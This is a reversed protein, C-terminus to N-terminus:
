GSAGAPMPLLKAGRAIGIMQDATLSQLLTNSIWYVADDTEWSVMRLRDNDYYLNYTIDGIKKSEHPEDLIPADKWRLGQLGYFEGQPTELVFKYAFRQDNPLSHDVLSYARPKQAYESGAIITSPYYIPMKRNRRQVRYALEKGFNGKELGFAAPTSAQKQKEASAGGGKANAQKSPPPNEPAPAGDNPTATSGRPGKTGEIGLFQSVAQEIQGPTVTVEKGVTGPFHVEKVPEDRAEIMLKMVQLAAAPDDIDSSTYHTFISILDHRKTLLDEAPVRARAERLFDQQRANRVIDNDTHRFRVYQLANVGCLRQYGPRVNIESYEASLPLGQNSHYYRRDVDVYVCGIASVAKAFGVFDVNVVHNVTIGTLAKVTQLTLKPGGLSYAANFKDTGYGPIDVTLDRPISFLAIAKRDPDIRLLMTTDSLGHGGPLNARKDSGIVMITQPAGGEVQDLQNEVGVLQVNHGLADAINSLYVILSTATATAVSGIILFSALTFRAWLPFRGRPRSLGNGQVAAPPPPQGAAARVVATPRDAEEDDEDYDEEELDEDTLEEDEELDEDLRDEPAVEDIAGTPAPHEETPAAIVEDIDNDLDDLFDDSLELDDTPAKAVSQKSPTRKKAAAKKPAAKTAADKKPAAKKGAPKKAAPKKRDAM